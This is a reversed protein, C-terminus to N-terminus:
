AVQSLAAFILPLLQAAHSRYFLHEGPLLQLTALADTHEGWGALLEPRILADQRGAFAHIPLSLPPEPRHRYGLFLGLDARLAPLLLDLTAPDRLLADPITGLSRLHLLLDTGRATQAHRLPNIGAIQTLDLDPAPSAAVLLLRPLPAVRRRLERTLEYALLAGLSAGFFACPQHLLPTLAAALEDLMPAWDHIPAERLRDERGPAQVVYVEAGQPLLRRWPIFAAPGGGGHPFCILRVAPVPLDLREDSQQPLHIRRLWRDSHPSLSAPPPTPRPQGISPSVRPPHVREVLLQVLGRLTQGALFDAIPPADGLDALVAARLEVGLLSDVGQDQLPLHPNISSSDGGLLSRLLTTLRHELRAETQEQTAGRLDVRQSGPQPTPAQDASPLGPQARSARAVARALLSRDIRQVCLGEVRTLVEGEASLLEVDGVLQQGDFSTVVAHAFRAADLHPMWVRSQGASHGVFTVDPRQALQLYDPTAPMLAQGYVESVAIDSLVATPVELPCGTPRLVSEAPSRLEVLAEGDRRWIATITRFSAGLEHEGARWLDRYFTEGSQQDPCRARIAAVDRHEPSKESAPLARICGVVHVTSSASTGSEHSSIRFAFTCDPQPLLQTHVVRASSAQLRDPHPAALDRPDAPRGSHFVLPREFRVDSFAQGVTEGVDCGLNRLAQSALSLLVAGSVVTHGYVAHDSLAPLDSASLTTAFLAGGAPLTPSQLRQGLLSRPTPATRGAEGDPAKQAIDIAEAVHRRRQFPYTPLAQKRRAEEAYLADLSLNVGATHLAALSAQLQTSEPPDFLATADTARPPRQASVISTGQAADSRRLLSSLQTGPGLELFVEVGLTRLTSVADAFRVAARAQTAYYAPHALEDWALRGSTCLVVPLRPPSLRVAAVASTLPALVPDMLPSHFAHSVLLRQSRGGRAAFAALLADLARRDGSVVTESPGNLAATALQGSYPELLRAVDAESAFLAAMGGDGPAQAMLRGRLAVLQLADALSMVGAACAAVYEGVSHGFLAVPEVGLSRYLTWLAWEFAFLAPQAYATNSLFRPDASPSLLTSLPVDLHSQLLTGCEELCRRFVPQSAALQTGMGVRQAGQGPFLVAVKPATSRPGASRYIGDSADGTDQAAARLRAALQAAGTGLVALRQPMRLARGTVATYCFDVWDDGTLHDLRDAYSEALVRLAAPSRASLLLLEAPRSPPTTPRPAPPAELIAHANTGSAGFSSVGALSARPAADSGPVDTPPFDIPATVVRLPLKSWDIHPSPQQLHLQGPIRAHSLSLAAKILGAVGASAELHGINTKLSGILLPREPPRGESLAAALARAEIPDGLPTATGHAEVYDIASPPVAAARLAARIVAQQAAGSPVTLGSSPGDQNVASGRIVAVIRDGAALADRLRRLVVVGCGEGRAYGDARADFTRCRGDPSLVRGKCLVYHTMPSLMLNVGGALAVDCERLRLSQCALHVSVLSSSCATDIALAPGQLGLAYSLRGAAFSYATLGVYPDVGSLDPQRLDLGPSLLQGYDSGSIGVFVGTRSSHLRDPACAADELAEWAVELFLRQQPDMSRAERASIGFFAEDFGYVDRLFAGRRVHMRGPVDPNPDYLAGADWRDPPVDGTADNGALLQRWLAAPSDAGGPFRCGIGLVAISERTASEAAQVRARLERIEVLARRLVDTKEDPAATSESPTKM